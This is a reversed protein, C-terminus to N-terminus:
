AKCVNSAQKQNASATGIAGKSYEKKLIDRKIKDPKGDWIFQYM